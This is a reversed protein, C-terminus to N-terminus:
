DNCLLPIGLVTLFGYESGLQQTALYGDSRIQGGKWSCQTKGLTSWVLLSDMLEVAGGQFSHQPVCGCESTRMSWTYGFLKTHHQLISAKKM